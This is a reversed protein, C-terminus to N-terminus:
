AAGEAIHDLGLRGPIPDPHRGGPRVPVAERLQGGLPACRGRVASVCLGGRQEGLAEVQPTPRRQSPDAPGEGDSRGAQVLFAQGHPLLPSLCLEARACRDIEGRQPCEDGGVRGALAGPSMEHLSQVPGATMGLGELHGRLAPLCEGVLEADLGTRVQLSQM